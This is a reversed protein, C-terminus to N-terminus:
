QGHAGPIHAQKLFLLQKYFKAAAQASLLRQEQALVLQLSQSPIHVMLLTLIRDRQQMLM